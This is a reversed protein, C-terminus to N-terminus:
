RPSVKTVIMRTVPEPTAFSLVTASAVVTAPREAGASSPM